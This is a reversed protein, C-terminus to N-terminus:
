TTMMVLNLITVLTLMILPSFILYSYFMLAATNSETNMFDINTPWCALAILVFILMPDDILWNRVTLTLLGGIIPMLFFRCSMIFSISKITEREKLNTAFGSQAGINLLTLPVTMSAICQMARTINRHFSAEEFFINKLSPITGIIIALIGAYLPPSMVSSLTKFLKKCKSKSRATILPTTEDYYIPLTKLDNKTFKVLKEKSFILDLICRTILVFLTSLLLYTIGRTVTQEPPEDDDCAFLRIVNTNALVKIFGVPLSTINNFTISREVFKKNSSSLRLLKSGLKSFFTGIAIYIICFFALPWLNLLMSASINSGIQSFLLCPLFLNMVLQALNKRIKQSIIGSRSGIYGILVIGIVLGTSEISALLLSSLKISPDM